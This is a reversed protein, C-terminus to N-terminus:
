IGGTLTLFAAWSVASMAVAGVPGMRRYFYALVPALHYLQMYPSLMVSGALWLGPSRTALLALGPLVTWPWWTVSLDNVLHATALRGPWWGWVALSIVIVATLPLLHWLKGRALWRSAAWGALAQPKCAVILLALWLPTMLAGILLLDVNGYALVILAPTSAAFLLVRWWSRLYRVVMALSLLGIALYGPWTPLAALPRLIVFIWPPYHQNGAFLARLNLAHQQFWYWDSGTLDIAM